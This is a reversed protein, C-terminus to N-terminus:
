APFEILKEEMPEEEAPKAAANTKAEQANHKSIEIELSRVASYLANIKRREVGLINLVDSKDQWYGVSHSFQAQFQRMIAMFYTKSRFIEEERFVKADGINSHSQFSQDTKRLESVKSELAKHLAYQDEYEAIQEDRRDNLFKTAEPTM